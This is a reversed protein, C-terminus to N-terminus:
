EDGAPVDADHAPPPGSTAAGADNEGLGDEPVLETESDDSASPGHAAMHADMEALAASVAEESGGQRQQAYYAAGLRRLLTQSQRKAQLQDIKAQGQSVGQQAKGIAQEAQQKVKDMLSM